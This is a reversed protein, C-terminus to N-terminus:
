VQQHSGGGNICCRFRGQRQGLGRGRCMNTLAFFGGTPDMLINHLPHLGPGGWVLGEGGTFGLGCGVVEGGARFRERARNM